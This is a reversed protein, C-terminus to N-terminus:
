NDHGCAGLLGSTKKFEDLYTVIPWYFPSSRAWGDLQLGMYKVTRLDM